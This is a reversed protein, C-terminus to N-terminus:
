VPPPHTGGFIAILDHSPRAIGASKRQSGSFHFFRKIIMVMRSQQLM